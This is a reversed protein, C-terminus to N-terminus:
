PHVTLLSVKKRATAIIKEFAEDISADSDRGIGAALCEALEIPDDEAAMYKKISDSHQNHILKRVRILNENFNFGIAKLFPRALLVEMYSDVAFFAVGCIHEPVNPGPLFITIAPKFKVSASFTDEATKFAGMLSMLNKLSEFDMSPKGEWINVLTSSSITKFHSGSDDLVVDFVTAELVIRFRGNNANPM